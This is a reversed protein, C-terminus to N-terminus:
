SVRHVTGWFSTTSRLARKCPPPIRTRPPMRASPVYNSPTNWDPTAPLTDVTELNLSVTSSKMAAVRPYGGFSYYRVLPNYSGLLDAVQGDNRFYSVATSPPEGKHDIPVFTQADTEHICSAVLLMAALLRTM